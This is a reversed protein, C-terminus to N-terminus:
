TADLNGGMNTEILSHVVERDRIERRINLMKLADTITGGKRSVGSFRGKCIESESTVRKRLGEGPGDTDRTRVRGEAEMNSGVRHAITSKKGVDSGPTTCSRKEGGELSRAVFELPSINNSDIIRHNEGM